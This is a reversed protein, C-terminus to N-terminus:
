SKQEIDPSFSALGFKQGGSWLSRLKHSFSLPMTDKVMSIASSVKRGVVSLSFLWQLQSVLISGLTAQRLEIASSAHQPVAVQSYALWIAM